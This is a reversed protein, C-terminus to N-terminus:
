EIGGFKETQLGMVFAIPIVSEALVSELIPDIDM